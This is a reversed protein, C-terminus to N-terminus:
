IFAPARAVCRGRVVFRTKCGGEYKVVGATTSVCKKQGPVVCPMSRIEYITFFFFFLHSFLSLFYGDVYVIYLLHVYCRRKRWYELLHPEGRLTYYRQPVGEIVDDLSLGSVCVRARICWGCAYTLGNVCAAVVNVRRRGEKRGPM